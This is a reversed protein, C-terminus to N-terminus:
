GRVVGGGLSVMPIGNGTCVLYGAVEDDTNLGIVPDPM